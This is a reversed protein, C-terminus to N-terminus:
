YSHSPHYVSNQTFYKMSQIYPSILICFSYINCTPALAFGCVYIYVETFM